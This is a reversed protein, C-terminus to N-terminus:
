CMKGQNATTSLANHNSPTQAFSLPVSAKYLFFTSRLASLARSILCSAFAQDFRCGDVHLEGSSVEARDEEHHFPCCCSCHGVGVDVGGSACVAGALLFQDLTLAVEVAEALNTSKRGEEREHVGGVLTGVM